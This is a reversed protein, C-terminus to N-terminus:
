ATLGDGAGGQLPLGAQSKSQPERILLRPTGVKGSKAVLGGDFTELVPAKVSLASAVHVADKPKIGFDWVLDRATEAVSRTVNQVAIYENKFFEIVLKKLAADPLLRPEGRLALVEALTLASTVILVKGKEAEELAAECAEVRGPEALFLALFVVSDWYRVDVSM